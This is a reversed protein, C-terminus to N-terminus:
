VFGVDVQFLKEVKSVMHKNVVFVIVHDDSEIVTDHHAIIVQVDGTAKATQHEDAVREPRRVIAGITAGKPLNIEEIRRGVVRSSKYDGHAILELAEAAGRRLSHVAVCDGRRVRALLTGIVAQAPSIAIDIQGAQLLNVYASRNILAVVKRAGMRKALLASMINNEDDNTVACYLDMEGVNESELLEEDTVDGNLVLARRLDAALREANEKSHEIVKVQYDSELALALRRGINGGGGLMIRRIPKDMRRLERMAQRINESAAILFVEDGAEIVTHGEPVIPADQRFIAAVRTEIDPMHRRIEQLQKGVMPGGEFARVAVLSVRGGAFELVQLAEPFEILKVIYDTIIQEPCIAHDVALSDDSFIEPHSLYDAARIRAIRTPTNFLKAALKCAVLNTEDSRTVAFILDADAAGAASLVSPHGANGVITRLDLRDQLVKLRAADTDVITIDNAESCLSQAM